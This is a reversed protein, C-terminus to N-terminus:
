ERERTTTHSSRMLPKEWPLVLELHWPSGYNELCLSLLQPEGAENGQPAHLREGSWPDFGRGRSQCTFEWGSVVLSSQEVEAILSRMGKWGWAELERENVSKRGKFSNRLWMFGDTGYLSKVPFCVVVLFAILCLSGSYRQKWTLMVPLRKEHFWLSIGRELNWDEEEWGWGAWWNNREMEKIGGRWRSEEEWCWFMSINRGDKFIERCYISDHMVWSGEQVSVNMRGAALLIPQQCSVAWVRQSSGYSVTKDM